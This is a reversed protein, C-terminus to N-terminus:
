KGYVGQLLDIDKNTDILLEKNKEEAMKLFSLGYKDSPNIKEYLERLAAMDKILCHGGAGRGSKHVPNAFRSPINPDAEMAKLIPEWSAGIKSSLDFFINFLIINIYGSVNQMYKILEAETSTCFIKSSAEPLISMVLEAAENSGHKERVFGVINTYPKAADEAATAERLFEPSFIITIHPYKKQWLEITGPIITSKIVAIAGERLLSLSSEVISSDFGKPTTPTPVAIFVVDCEKILEKNKLYESDLSYRVVQYGRNEFDNAYNKGVYGQGIFGVKINKQEM